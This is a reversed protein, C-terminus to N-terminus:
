SKRFRSRGFRRKVPRYTGVLVAALGLAATGCIGGGNDPTTTPLPQVATLGDTPTLTPLEPPTAEPFTAEATPQDTPAVITPTPPPALIPLNETNEATVLNAIVWGNENPATPFEIAYWQLDPSLGVAEATQGLRMVGLVDYQTGPGSRVNLDTNATVTPEGPEAPPPTAEPVTPEPAPTGIVEDRADKFFIFFSAIGCIILLGILGAIVIYTWSRDQKLQEPAAYIVPEPQPEKPLQPEREVPRVPMLAAELASSLEGCSQFRQDPFQAMAKLIVMEVQEPLNPRKLRPSPVAGVPPPEGVMM